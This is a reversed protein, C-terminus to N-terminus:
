AGNELRCIEAGGFRLASRSLKDTATASSSVVVGKLRQALIMVGPPFIVGFVRDPPVDKAQAFRTEDLRARLLDDGASGIPAKQIFEFALQLRLWAYIPAGNQPGPKNRFGQGESTRKGGSATEQQGQRSLRKLPACSGNRIRLQVVSFPHTPLM